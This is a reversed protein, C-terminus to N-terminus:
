RKQTGYTLVGKRAQAQKQKQPKEFLVGVANVNIEKIDMGVMTEMATKVRAQVEEAVKHLQYGFKIVISIDIVIKDQNNYVKIGKTFNRKAFRSSESASYNSVVGDVEHTATGAIIALVENAIQIQGIQSNVSLENM